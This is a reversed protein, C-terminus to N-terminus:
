EKLRNEAYERIEVPKYNIMNTIYELAERLKTITERALTLDTKLNYPIYFVGQRTAIPSHEQITARVFDGSEMAQKLATEFQERTLHECEDAYRMALSKVYDDINNKNPEYKAELEAIRAELKMCKEIQWELRSGLGAIKNNRNGLEIFDENVHKILRRNEAELYDIYPENAEFADREDKGEQGRWDHWTWRKPKQSM